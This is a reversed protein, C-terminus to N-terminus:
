GMAAHPMGAVKADRKAAEALMWDANSFDYEGNEKAVEDWYVPLRFNRIKLDDLASLYVAKWDLGLESAYKNSFTVGWEIEASTKRNEMLIIISFYTLLVAAVAFLVRRRSFVFTKKSLKVSM